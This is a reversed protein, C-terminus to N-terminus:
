LHVDNTTTISTSLNIQLNLQEHDRYKPLIESNESLPASGNPIKKQRVPFLIRKAKMQSFYMNIYGDM